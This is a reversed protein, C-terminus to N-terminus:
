SRDARTIGVQGVEPNCHSTLIVAAVAVVAATRLVHASRPPKFRHGTKEHEDAGGAAAATAAAALTAFAGAMGVTLLSTSCQCDTTVATDTASVRGAAGQATVNRAGAYFREKCLIVCTCDSYHPCHPAHQSML